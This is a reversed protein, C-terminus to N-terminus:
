PHVLLVESKGSVSGGLHIQRKSVANQFCQLVLKGTAAALFPFYMTPLQFYLIHGKSLAEDFNIAHDTEEFLEGVESSTFHGLMTELGSIKEERDKAPLATFRTLDRKLMEDPCAAIWKTLEEVDILLRQVLAFTPVEKQAFILRIIGLFLKYQINKYYENEFTFSSFVREAVEQTSNGRLPNFSSSPGPNALSFLRFDDERGYLKVYSYLKQVFTADSKGDIILLGSKNKIDSIAWPLIVSESKGANTTGIVQAHMTRFPQKLHVMRGKDADIGLFVSTEDEETISKEQARKAFWNWLKAIGLALLSATGVVALLFITTKHIEVFHRISLWAKALGSLLLLVGLFLVMGHSDGPKAEKKNKSM